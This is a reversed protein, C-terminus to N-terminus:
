NLDGYYSEAIDRLEDTDGDELDEVETYYRSFPAAEEFQAVSQAFEKANFFEITQSFSANSNKDFATVQIRM